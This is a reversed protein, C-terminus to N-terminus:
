PTMCDLHCRPYIMEGQEDEIWLYVRFHRGAQHESCCTTQTEPPVVVRLGQATIHATLAHRVRLGLTWNRPAAAPPDHLISSKVGGEPHIGLLILAERPSCPKRCRV